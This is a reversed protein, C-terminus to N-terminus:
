ECRLAILPDLRMARRAPLYCALLAVLMLLFSVAAVTLPDTSTVGYLMSSLFRALALSGAIGIAIGILTLRLGEGIILKLVDDRRAGLAVRIGIEQIRQSVRQSLVGYIGVAALLLALVSFLGFLEARFRPESTFWALSENVTQVTPLPLNNDVAVVARGVESEVARPNGTTRVFLSLSGGPAQGLPRYVSPDQSYGEFLTPRSVDGVIGVITLWPEKSDPKGLKIRQGLATEKSFFQRAFAQNIIAVPVSDSRDVDSFERGQLLPIGAVRFYGGSVPEPDSASVVRSSSGAEDITVPGTGLFSALSPAFAVGQVGPLSDLKLGLRDWFRMWDEPKSYSSTPLRIDATFLGDRDYGLPATTLRIMSQILLGSAVLVMLSLAM